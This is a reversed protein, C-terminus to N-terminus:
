KQQVLMLNEVSDHAKTVSTFLVENQTTQLGVTSALEQLTASAQEIVSSFENISAEITNSSRYIENTLADYQSIDEKLSYFTEKIHIFANQTEVALRLNDTFKQGAMHVKNETEVTDVSVNNLNESIQTATKRTIDALKRVEEAVVAFGKGSDGARAAEISANLALLNTQEAIEQITKAFQSTEKVLSSLSSIHTNVKKMEEFSVSLEEKLKSILNEGTNTVNEANVADLHLKKVLNSTDAVVKNANELSETIELISNSQSQMGSAIEGISRNMEQSSQFNEHSKEKVFDIVDQLHITNEEVTKRIERDNKLLLETERQASVINESLKKSISFQFTLLITVLTYLLYITVYNKLELPLAEMHLYTFLTIVGLGLIAAFWLIKKKMYIAATALIFYTLFYATPSVSTEMIIFLVSVVLIIAIYPIFKTLKKLYHLVAVIAVGINGGIVISLIVALEKKMAIDVIAALIVCIFTAKIVLANKRTLDEQKIEEITKM